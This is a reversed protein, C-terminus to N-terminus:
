VGTLIDSIVVNPRVRVGVREDREGGYAIPATRIIILTHAELLLAQIRRISVSKRTGIARLTLRRTHEPAVGRGAEAQSYSVLRVEYGWGDLSMSEKKVPEHGSPTAYSVIEDASGRIVSIDKWDAVPEDFAFSLASKISDEILESKVFSLDSRLNITCIMVTSGDAVVSVYPVYPVKAHRNSSSLKKEVSAGIPDYMDACAGYVSVFM